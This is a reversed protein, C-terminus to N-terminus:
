HHLLCGLLVALSTFWEKWHVSCGLVVWLGFCYQFGLRLAIMPVEATRRSRQFYENLICQLSVPWAETLGLGAATQLVSHWLAFARKCHLIMDRFICLATLFVLFLCGFFNRQVYSVPALHSWHWLQRAFAISVHLAESLIFFSKKSWRM